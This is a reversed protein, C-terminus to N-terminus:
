AMNTSMHMYTPLMKPPLLVAMKIFMGPVGAFAAVVTSPLGNTLCPLAPSAM